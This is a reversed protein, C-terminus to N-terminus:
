GAPVEVRIINQEAKLGQLLEDVTRDMGGTQISITVIAAGNTPISQNITLVNAGTQALLSLLSSLAGKEDRLLIHFTVIRTRGLDTFPTIADRYKYFASRSIGACEAAEAVTRVAGTELLQKAEAVRLFTEPLVRADVLYYRATGM